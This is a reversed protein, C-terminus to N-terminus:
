TASWCTTTIRACRNRVRKKTNKRQAESQLSEPDFRTGNAVLTAPPDNVAANDAGVLRSGAIFPSQAAADVSVAVLMVSIAELIGLAVVLAVLKM